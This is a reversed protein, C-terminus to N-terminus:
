RISIPAQLRINTGSRRRKVQAQDAGGPVTDAPARSLTHMPVPSCSRKKAANTPLRSAIEAASACMSEALASTLEGASLSRISAAM